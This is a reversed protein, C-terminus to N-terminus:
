YPFLDRLGHPLYPKVLRDVWTVFQWAIYVTLGVPATVLIGTFFYRRLHSTSQPQDTM